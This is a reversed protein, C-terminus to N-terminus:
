DGTEPQLELARWEYRGLKIAGPHIQAGTLADITQRPLDVEGGKGDMNVAIWL